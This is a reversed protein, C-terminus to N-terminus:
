CSSASHPDSLLWMDNIVSPYTKQFVEHWLCGSCFLHRLCQFSCGKSEKVKVMQDLVTHTGNMYVTMQRETYAIPVWVQLCYTHILHATTM